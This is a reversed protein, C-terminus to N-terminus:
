EEEDDPMCNHCTHQGNHWEGCDGWHFTNNCSKCAGMESLDVPEDCVCCDGCYELTM